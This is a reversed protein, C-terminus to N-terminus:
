SAVFQPPNNEPTTASYITPTNQSVSKM